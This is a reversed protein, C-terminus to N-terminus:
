SLGYFKYFQQNTEDWIFNACVVIIPEAGYDTLLKQVDGDIIYEGTELNEPVLNEGAVDTASHEREIFSPKVNFDFLWTQIVDIKFTVYSTANARYQINTIFGYFWKNSFSTNQFMIYNCNYLQEVTLSVRLLGDTEKVYSQNTLTYLAKSNFYTTQDSVTNFWLTHEYTEDIPVNTLFKITSNPAIYM